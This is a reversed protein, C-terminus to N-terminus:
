DTGQFRTTGTADSQQIVAVRSSLTELEAAPVPVQKAKSRRRWLKRKRWSSALAPLKGFWRLLIPKTKGLCWRPNRRKGCDTAHLLSYIEAKVLKHSQVEEKGVSSDEVAGLNPM